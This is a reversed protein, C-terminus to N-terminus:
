IVVHLSLGSSLLPPSFFRSLRTMIMSTSYFGDITSTSIIMVIFKKDYIV